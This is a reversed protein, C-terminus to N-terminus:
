DYEYASEYKTNANFGSVTGLDGGLKQCHSRADEWNKISNFKQVHNNCAQKCTKQVHKARIALETETVIIREFPKQSTVLDGGEYSSPPHNWCNMCILWDNITPYWWGGSFGKAQESRPGRDSTSFEAGNTGGPPPSFITHKPLNDTKIQKGFNLKYGKSESCIKFGDWIIYAWSGRKALKVRM